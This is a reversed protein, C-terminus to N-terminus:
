QSSIAECVILERKKEPPHIRAKRRQPPYCGSAHLDATARRARSGGRTAGTKVTSRRPLGAPMYTPQRAGEKPLAASPLCLAFGISNASFYSKYTRYSKYSPYEQLQTPCTSELSRLVHHETHKISEGPMGPITNGTRRSEDRVGCLSSGRIRPSRSGRQSATKSQRCRAYLMKCTTLRMKAIIEPPQRKFKVM